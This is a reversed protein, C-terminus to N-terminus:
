GLQVLLNVDDGPLDGDVTATVTMDDLNVAGGYSSLFATDAADRGTAIRILSARPALLTSDVVYWGGELYAEAVAHFDMPQLGPAYVAVLRAPIDMARLLAIALHAYDRCVGRSALLTDVAGDTPGSSGSIYDLQTGVWSTVAALLDSARRIDHFLRSAFGALRDSECYRSPRLYLLQDAPDGAPAALRGTLVARYDIRLRGPPADMVWLRGGHPADVQEWRVPQGDLTIGISEEAGLLAADAVAVQVALRAESEVAVGLTTTVTRKMFLWQTV